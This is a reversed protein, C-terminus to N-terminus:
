DDYFIPQRQRVFAAIAHQDLESLATFQVGMGPMNETDSDGGHYERVWRVVGEASVLHGDPLTFNVNIPSGIARVDYTAIFIGGTSIDETLGMFFNSDSEIGIEAQIDLRRAQRRESGASAKALGNASPFVSSTGNSKSLPYLIALTRALIRSVEELREQRSSQILELARRLHEMACASRKSVIPADVTEDAMQRTSKEIAERVEVPLDLGQTLDALAALSQRAKAYATQLDTESM